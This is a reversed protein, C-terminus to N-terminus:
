TLFEKDKYLVSQCPFYKHFSISWKYTILIITGIFVLRGMHNTTNLQTQWVTNSYLAWQYVKCLFLSNPSTAFHLLYKETANHVSVIRFLSFWPYSLLSFNKLLLSFHLLYIERANHVWVISYYASGFLLLIYCINKQPIISQFLELLPQVLSGLLSFNNPLLSFHLM